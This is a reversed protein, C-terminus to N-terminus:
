VSVAVASQAKERVLQVKNNLVDIEADLALLDESTLSKYDILFDLLKWSAQNIAEAPKRTM